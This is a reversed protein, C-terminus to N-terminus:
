ILQRWDLNPLQVHPFEKFRKWNGAWELGSQTAIRGYVQWTEEKKSWLPKRGAKLPVADFAMRYNHLSQGPAAYTVKKGYQPGVGLLIDHLDERNYKKKLRIAMGQIVHFPRGQRYLKAQEEFSRYTCYILLEINEDKFALEFADKMKLAADHLRPVLDELERSM